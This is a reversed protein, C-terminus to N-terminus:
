ALQERGTGSEAMPQNTATDFDSNQATAQTVFAYITLSCIFARIALRSREKMIKAEKACDNRRAGLAVVVSTTRRERAILFSIKLRQAGKLGACSLRM